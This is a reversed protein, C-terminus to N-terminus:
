RQGRRWGDDEGDGGALLYAAHIEAVAIGESGDPADEVAVVHEPEGPFV